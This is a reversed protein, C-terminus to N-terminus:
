QRKWHALSRCKNIGDGGHGCVEVVAAQAEWDAEECNDRIGHGTYVFWDQGSMRVSCQTGIFLPGWCLYNDYSLLSKDNKDSIKFM